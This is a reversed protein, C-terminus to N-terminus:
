LYKQNLLFDEYWAVKVSYYDLYIYADKFNSWGYWNNSIITKVNEIAKQKIDLDDSDTFIISMNFVDPANNEDILTNIFAVKTAVEMYERTKKEPKKVYYNFLTRWTINYKNGLVLMNYNFNDIVLKKELFDSIIHNPPMLFYKVENWEKEWCSIGIYKSIMEASLFSLFKVNEYSNKSMSFFPPLPWLFVEQYTRRGHAIENRVKIINDIFFAVNDDLLKYKELFFKIKISLNLHNGILLSNISKKNQRVMVKKKEEEFYYSNFYDYLMNEINTKLKNKEM